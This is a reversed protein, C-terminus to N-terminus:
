FLISRYHYFAAEGPFCTTTPVKRKTWNVGQLWWLIAVHSGSCNIEPVLQFSSSSFFFSFCSFKREKVTSVGNEWSRTVRPLSGTLAFTALNAVLQQFQVPVYFIGSHHLHHLQSAPLRIAITWLTRSKIYHLFVALPSLFYFAPNLPIFICM